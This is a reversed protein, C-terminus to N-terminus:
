FISIVTAGTSKAVALLDSTHDSHAHSVLIFDAQITDININKALKNPTIFPDFLLKKGEAEILFSSHGFYTVKM